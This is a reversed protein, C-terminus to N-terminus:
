VLTTSYVFVFGLSIAAGLKTLSGERAAVLGERDPYKSQPGLHGTM